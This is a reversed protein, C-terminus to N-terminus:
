IAEQSYDTDDGLEDRVLQVLAAYDGVSHHKKFRSLWLGLGLCGGSEWAHCAATIEADTMHLPDITM